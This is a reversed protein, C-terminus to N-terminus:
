KRNQRHRARGRERVDHTDRRQQHYQARPEDRDRLSRIRGLDLVPLERRQRLERPLTQAVPAVRAIELQVDVIM